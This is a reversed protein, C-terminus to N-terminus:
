SETIFILCMSGINIKELKRKGIDMAHIETSFYKRGYKFWFVDVHRVIVESWVFAELADHQWGIDDDRLM